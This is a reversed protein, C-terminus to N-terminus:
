IAIYKKGTASVPKRVSCHQSYYFYWITFTIASQGFTMEFKYANSNLTWISQKFILFVTFYSYKLMYLPKVVCCCGVNTSVTILMESFSTLQCLLATNHPGQPQQIAVSPWMYNMFLRCSIEFDHYQYYRCHFSHLQAPSIVNQQNEFNVCRRCLVCRRM